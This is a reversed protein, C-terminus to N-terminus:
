RNNAQSSTSRVSLSLKSVAGASLIVEKNAVLNYEVGGTSVLVGSATKGDFLIKKALTGNYVKLSAAATPLFSSESSSRTQHDPDITNMSYQVGSLEGSVFDLTARFGLAEFALKAFSSFPNAWIPVSVKLPGGVPGFGSANYGLSANLPRATNNPPTFSVSKKFYHLFSDFEYSSDNVESAWKHYSQKTGRQYTFYNRGSSYFVLKTLVSCSFFTSLFAL